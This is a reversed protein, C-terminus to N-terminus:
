KSGACIAQGRVHGAVVRELAARDAPLKALPRLLRLTEAQAARRGPLHHLGAGGKLQDAVRGHLQGSAETRCQHLRPLEGPFRECLDVAVEDLLLTLM